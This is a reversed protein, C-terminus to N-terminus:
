SLLGELPRSDFLMVFHCNPCRVAKLAWLEKQPEGDEIEFLGIESDAVLKEFGCYLCRPRERAKLRLWDDLNKTEESRDDSM